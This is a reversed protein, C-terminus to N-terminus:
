RARALAVVEDACGWSVTVGAREVRVVQGRIPVLERDDALVRSGLGTANVVLPCAALAEALDAVARVRLVGGRGEVARRLWALYVPMEVVPVEFEFGRDFGVPLEAPSLARLGRVGARYRAAEDPVGPPLLEVGRRLVVGTAPVGAFRLLEEYTTRAWAAVRDAPAIKFPYWIAGAVASTTRDPPERTWIEVAFGAEQLRRACSLGSVGAGLVLARRTTM